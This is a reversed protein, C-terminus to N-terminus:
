YPNAPNLIEADNRVTVNIDCKRDLVSVANKVHAQSLHSYRLTMRIGKHGLLEKVTTLDINKMALWSAFTHRLDHFHFDLIHSRRLATGFSRKINNFPKLTKPNYFVFKCDLRRIINSLTNFLTDNIPVERREGNKTKDLLIIRNKLDVRDWTLHFIESKRMGTNLATIV